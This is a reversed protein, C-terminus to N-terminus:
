RPLLSAGVLLAVLVVLVAISVLAIVMPTRNGSVPGVNSREDRDDAAGSTQGAAPPTDIPESTVQAPTM